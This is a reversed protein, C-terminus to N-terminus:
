LGPLKTLKVDNDAVLVATHDPLLWSVFVYATNNKVDITFNNKAKLAYDALTEWKGGKLTESFPLTVQIIKRDWFEQLERKLYHGEAVAKALDRFNQFRMFEIIGEGKNFNSLISEAQYQSYRSRIVAAIIDDRKFSPIEAYDFDWNEHMEGDIEKDNREINFLVQGTGTKGYEIIGPPQYDCNGKM